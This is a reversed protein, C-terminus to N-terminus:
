RRFIRFVVAEALLFLFGQSPGFPGLGPSSPSYDHTRIKDNGGAGTGFYHLYCRRSNQLFAQFFSDQCRQQWNLSYVLSSSPLHKPRGALMVQNVMRFMVYNGKTLCDALNQPGPSLNWRDIGRKPEVERPWIDIHWTNLQWTVWMVIRSPVM